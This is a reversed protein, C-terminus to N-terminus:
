SGRRERPWAGVLWGVAAASSAAGGLGQVYRAVDLVVISNAFAFVLSSVILITLGVVVAPRM